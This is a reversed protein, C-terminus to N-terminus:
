REVDAIPEPTFGSSLGAANQAATDSVACDDNSCIDSTVPTPAVASNDTDSTVPTVVSHIAAPLLQIPPPAHENCVGDGDTTIKISPSLDDVGVGSANVKTLAVSTVVPGPNDLDPELQLMTDAGVSMVPFCHNLNAVIPFPTYIHPFLPCFQIFFRPLPPSLQISLYRRPCRANTTHSRKRPHRSVMLLGFGSHRIEAGDCPTKGHYMSVACYVTAVLLESELSQRQIEQGLCVLISLSGCTHPETQAHVSKFLYIAASTLM